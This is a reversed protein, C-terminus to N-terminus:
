KKDILAKLDKKRRELEKTTFTESTSIKYNDEQIQKKEEKEKKKELDYIKKQEVAADNVSMAVLEVADKEVKSKAMYKDM